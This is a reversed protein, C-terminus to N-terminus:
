LYKDTLAMVNNINTWDNTYKNSEVQKNNEDFYKGTIGKVEPSTALYRYTEAMREPEISKKSKQTYVWKM